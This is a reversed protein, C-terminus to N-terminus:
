INKQIKKIIKIFMFYFDIPFFIFSFLFSIMEAKKNIEIVDIAKAPHEEGGVGGGCPVPTPLIDFFLTHALCCNLKFVDDVDQEACNVIVATLGLSLLLPL